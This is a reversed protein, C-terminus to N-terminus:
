HVTPPASAPVAGADRAIECSCRLTKGCMRLSEACRLGSRYDDWSKVEGGQSFEVSGYVQCGGDKRLIAAVCTGGDFALSVEVPSDAAQAATSIIGLAIVGASIAFQTLRCGNAVQSLTREM